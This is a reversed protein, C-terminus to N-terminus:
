FQFYLFTAQNQVYLLSVFFLVGIAVSWRLTPRWSVWNWGTGKLSAGAEGLIQQTNPFFWVIVLGIVAVLIRSPKAPDDHWTAGHLGFMGALYRLAAATSSARFFVQAVLVCVYTALVSAVKTFVGAPKRESEPGLYLHWAQNVTLYIGHLVGFILYQLGAGHWVGALFMTAMTPWAIMSLFGPVTRAAKKSIKKGKSMRARNVALSLPNYLYLTLYRTLTMHFRQWYDQVTQAKYPSNFNLPFEISFMRALGIAMDSYGSFDFYLQLSYSIIGIWAGQVGLKDGLIFAQDARIAITDALICKKALGITFWTLGVLVDDPKLRGYGEALFQPMMEKHHLIPGAILHPFFTVFLTYEVINQPTAEGQALDILYAIQTFTFFSIGLPLAVDPWGHHVHLVDDFFTLLHFLYKYYCLAGLNLAIGSIMWFKKREQNESGAILHSITFNVLVSGLLVFAFHWNWWSYFVVSAFALWAIIPRRGFRSFLQYGILTIPLFFLLFIGSNFLM